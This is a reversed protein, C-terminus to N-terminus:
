DNDPKGLKALYESYALRNSLHEYGPKECTSNEWDACLQELAQERTELDFVWMVTAMTRNIRVRASKDPKLRMPKKEEIHEEPYEKEIKELFKNEPLTKAAHLIEPKKRTKTSLKKVTDLNCQPIENLEQLPIEASLQKIASKAAYAASRSIPAADTIWRDASAYGEGTRPDVIYRYWENEEMALFILGREIHTQKDREELFRMRADCVKAAEEKDWIKFIRLHDEKIEDEPKHVGKRATM